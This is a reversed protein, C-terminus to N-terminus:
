PQIESLKSLLRQFPFRSGPCETHKGKIDEHKRIASLPIHYEEQLVRILNVLSSFQAESVEQRSFDGVLCIQIDEPRNAKVQKKWRWGVEVAGDPTKTGNGIVFHYFLGGMKRRRHDRDFVRAGGQLTASHHLTITQWHSDPGKPGVITQMEQFSIPGYPMQPSVVPGTVRPIWLTQGAELHTPSDMHNLRMLDSVDVRHMKAIRYLTQGRQVVHTIEAASSPPLAVAPSPTMKPVRACGNILLLIALPFIFLTKRLSVAPILSSQKKRFPKKSRM